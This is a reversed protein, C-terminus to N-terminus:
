SPKMMIHVYNHVLRETEKMAKKEAEAALKQQEIIQQNTEKANALIDDLRKKEM